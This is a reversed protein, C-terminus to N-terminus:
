QELATTLRKELAKIREVEAKMLADAAPEQQQYNEMLVLTRKLKILEVLENTRRQLSDYHQELDRTAAMAEKYRAESQHLLSQQLEREVSDSLMATHSLAAEYYSRNRAEFRMLRETSDGHAVMRLEMANLLAQLATDQKLVDVFLADVLDNSYGRSTLSGKIDQVVDPDQLAVPVEDQKEHQPSCAALLFLVPLLFPSRM